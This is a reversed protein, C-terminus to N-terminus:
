LNIEKTTALYKLLARWVNESSYPEPIFRDASEAQLVQDMTEEWENILSGWNSKVAEWINTRDLVLVNAIARLGQCSAQMGSDGACGELKDVDSILGYDVSGRKNIKRLSFVASVQKSELLNKLLDNLTQEVPNNTKLLKSM